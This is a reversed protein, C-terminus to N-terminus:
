RVSESDFRLTFCLTRSSWRFSPFTPFLSPCVLYRPMSRGAALSVQLRRDQRRSHRLTTAKTVLGAEAAEPGQGGAAAVHIAGGPLASGSNAPRVAAKNGAVGDHRLGVWVPGRSASSTPRLAALSRALRWIPAARAPRDHQGTSPKSSTRM